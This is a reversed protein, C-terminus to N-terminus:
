EATRANRCSLVAWGCYGAMVFLAAIVVIMSAIDAVAIPAFAWLGAYVLGALAMSWGGVRMVSQSRSTTCTPRLLAVHKPMFNGYVALILGIIVQMTRRAFEADIIQLDQTYRLVAAAALIFGAVAMSVLLRKM